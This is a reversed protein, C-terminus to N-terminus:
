KLKKLKEKLVYLGGGFVEHSQWKSRVFDKFRGDSQWVNLSKFSKSGWDVCTDKLVLAYNDPVLRSLVFQKINPWVELWERSVL